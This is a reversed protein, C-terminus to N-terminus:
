ATMRKIRRARVGDPRPTGKSRARGLERMIVAADKGGFRTPSGLLHAGWSNSKFISLKNWLDRIPVADALSVQIVIRVDVRCPFLEDRWIRKNREIYPQSVVELAAIWVGVKSLYCLLYDGPKLKNVKARRHERFGTAAAGAELFERWTGRSFVQVWYTRDGSETDM